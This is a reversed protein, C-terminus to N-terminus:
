LSVFYIAPQGPSPPRPACRAAKHLLSHGVAAQPSLQAVQLFVLGHRTPPAHRPLATVLLLPSCATLQPRALSFGGASASSGGRSERFLASFLCVVPRPHIPPLNWVRSLLLPGVADLFGDAAEFPFCPAAAALAPGDRLVRPGRSGRPRLPSVGGGGAVAPSDVSCVAEEPGARLRIIVSFGLSLGESLLRCPTRLFCGSEAGHPRQGQRGAGRGRGRRLGRREREGERRGRGPSVEAWRGVWEQPM